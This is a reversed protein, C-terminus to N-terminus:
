DGAGTSMREDQSKEGATICDANDQAAIVSRIAAPSVSLTFKCRGYLISPEYVSPFFDAALAMRAGNYKQRDAFSETFKRLRFNQKKVIVLELTLAQKVPRYAKLCRLFCPTLPGDSNANREANKIACLLVSASSSRSSAAKALPQGVVFVERANVAVAALIAKDQHIVNVAAMVVMSM